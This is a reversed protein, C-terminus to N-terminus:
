ETKEFCYPCTDKKNKKHFAECNHLDDLMKEQLKQHPLSFWSYKYKM